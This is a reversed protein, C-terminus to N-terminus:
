RQESIKANIRTLRRKISTFCAVWILFYVAFFIGFYILVGSLTHPMWWMFYAIPLTFVSCVVLHLLTKKLMSWGDVAWICSAGGWAAGYLLACLTQVIVANIESGLLDSLELVVPHYGGDGICLSIVITILLTIALGIAAGSLLCFIFKRKM